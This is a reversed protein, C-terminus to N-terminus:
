TRAATGVDAYMDRAAGIAGGIAGLIAGVILAVFAWWSASALGEAVNQTTQAVQEQVTGAAGAIQTEWQDLQTLIEQETLGTRQALEAAVNQRTLEGEGIAQAAYIQALEAMEEATPINEAPVGAQAFFQRAQQVFQDADLGGGAQGDAQVTVQPGGGIASAASGVANFAGGILAGLTSTLLWFTILTAAGWTVFGHLASDIRRPAGSLRGAVWGGVFVAVFSSLAWWWAGGTAFAGFGPTGEGAEAPDITSFGVAFGLLALLLQIVLVTVVGSFLAGWSFRRVLAPRAEVLRDGAARTTAVQVM